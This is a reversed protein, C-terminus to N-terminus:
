HNSLFGSFFPPYVSIIAPFTPAQNMLGVTQLIHFSKCSNYTSSEDFRRNIRTTPAQNM